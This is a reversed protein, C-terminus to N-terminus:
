PISYTLTSPINEVFFNAFNIFSTEVDDSTMTM